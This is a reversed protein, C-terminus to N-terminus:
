KFYEKEENTRIKLYKRGFRALKDAFALSQPQSLGFWAAIDAVLIAHKVRKRVSAQPQRKPLVSCVSAGTDLAWQTWEDRVVWSVILPLQDYEYFISRAFGMVRQIISKPFSSCEIVIINAQNNANDLFDKLKEIDVEYNETTGRLFSSLHGVVYSECTTKLAESPPVSGDILLSSPSEKDAARREMVALVHQASSKWVRDSIVASLM